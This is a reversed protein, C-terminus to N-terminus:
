PQALCGVRWGVEGSKLSAQLTNRIIKAVSFLLIYNIQFFFGQNNKNGIGPPLYLYIINFFFSHFFVM